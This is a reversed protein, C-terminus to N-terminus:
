LETRTVREMQPRDKYRFGPRRRQVTGHAAFLAMQVCSELDAEHMLGYLFGGVFADGAGDKAIFKGARVPPVPFHSLRVGYGKWLSAVICPRTGFTAVIHRKRNENGDARPIKSLWIAADEFTPGVEERHAHALELFETENGFIYDLYPILQVVKDPFYASLYRASLNLCLLKGMKACHEAVIRIGESTVTLFLGDVYVIRTAEISEWVKFRLHDLKYERGAGTFTASATALPRTSSTQEADAPDAGPPVGLGESRIELQPTKLVARWGTVVVDTDSFLTRIGENNCIERLKSSLEDRGIGGLLSVRVDEDEEARLRGRENARSLSMVVSAVIAAGGGLAYEINTKGDFGAECLDRLLPKHREEVQIRTNPKLDYRELLAPPVEAHLELLPNGICTLSLIESSM